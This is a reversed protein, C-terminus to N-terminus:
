RVREQEAADLELRVAIPLRWVGLCERARNLVQSSIENWVTRVDSGERLWVYLRLAPEATDGVLVARTRSVGDVTSCGDAIADTLATATITLRHEPTDDLVLDPHREPRLARFFFILGVVLLIVGVGIAFGKALEPQRGLFDLAVPDLLPRQSRYEGLWGQAVVLALVGSALALLGILAVFSREGRYSRTLAAVSTRRRSM